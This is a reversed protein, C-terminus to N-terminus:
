SRGRSCCSGGESSLVRRGGAEKRGAEKQSRPDRHGGLGQRRCEPDRRDAETTVGLCVLHEEQTESGAAETERWRWRRSERRQEGNRGRCKERDRQRDGGRDEFGEAASEAKRQPKSGM